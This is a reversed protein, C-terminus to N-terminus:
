QGSIYSSLMGIEPWYQDFEIPNMFFINHQALRSNQASWFYFVLTFLPIFYPVVLANCYVIKSQGMSYFYKQFRALCLLWLGAKPKRDCWKSAGYCTDHTNALRHIGANDKTSPWIRILYAEMKTLIYVTSREPQSGIARSPNATADLNVRSIGIQRIIHIPWHKIAHEEHFFQCHSSHM